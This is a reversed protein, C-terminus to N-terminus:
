AEQSLRKQVIDFQKPHGALVLLKNKKKRRLVRDVKIGSIDLVASGSAPIPSRYENYVILRIKADAFAFSLESYPQKAFYEFTPSKVDVSMGLKYAQYIVTHAVSPDVIFAIYGGPALVRKLHRMMEMNADRWARPTIWNMANLVHHEPYAFVYSFQADKLKRLNHLLTGQWVHGIENAFRRESINQNHCVVVFGDHEECRSLTPIDGTAHCGCSFYSIMTDLYNTCYAVM